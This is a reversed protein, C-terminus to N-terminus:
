DYSIKELHNAVVEYQAHDTGNEDTYRRCRLRGYVHVRDGKKIDLNPGFAVVQIWVTDVVIGGEKSTSTYELLVSFRAVKSGSVASINASGVVGAIEIRNINYEM